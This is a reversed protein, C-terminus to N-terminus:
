PDRSSRTTTLCAEGEGSRRRRGNPPATRPAAWDVLRDNGQPLFLTVLIFLGGLFFLWVEPFAGTLWTKAANM